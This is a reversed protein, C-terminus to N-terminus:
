SQAVSDQNVLKSTGLKGREEEANMVAFPIHSM